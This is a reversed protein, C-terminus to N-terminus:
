LNSGVVKIIEQSVISGVVSYTPCFDIGYLRGFNRLFLEDVDEKVEEGLQVMCKLM